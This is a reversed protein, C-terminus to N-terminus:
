AQAILTYQNCNSCLGDMEGYSQGSVSGAKAIEEILNKSALKSLCPWCFAQGPHEHLYILAKLPRSPM